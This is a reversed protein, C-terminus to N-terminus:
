LLMLVVNVLPCVAGNCGDVHRRTMRYIDRMVNCHRQTDVTYSTNKLFTTGLASFRLALYSLCKAFSKFISIFSNLRSLNCAKLKSFISEKM